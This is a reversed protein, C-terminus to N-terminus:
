GFNHRSALMGTKDNLFKILLPVFPKGVKSLDDLESPNPLASMTGQYEDYSKMEGPM